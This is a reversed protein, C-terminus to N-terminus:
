FYFPLSNFGTKKKNREVEEQLKGPIKDLKQNM